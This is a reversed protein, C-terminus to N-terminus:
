ATCARRAREVEGAVGAVAGTADETAQALSVASGVKGQKRDAGVCGFPEHGRLMAVRGPGHLDEEIELRPLRQSNM